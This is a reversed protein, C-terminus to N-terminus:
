PLHAPLTQAFDTVHPPSLDSYRARGTPLKVMALLTYLGERCGQYRSNANLLSELLKCLGFGKLYLWEISSVGCVARKYAKETMKSREVDRGRSFCVDM